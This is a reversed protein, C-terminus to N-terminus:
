ITDFALYMQNCGPTKVRLNDAGNMHVLISKDEYIALHLSVTTRDGRENRVEASITVDDGEVVVKHVKARM